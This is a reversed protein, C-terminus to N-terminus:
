DRHTHMRTVLALTCRVEGSRAGSSDIRCYVVNKPIKCQLCIGQIECIYSVDAWEITCSIIYKTVPLKRRCILESSTM